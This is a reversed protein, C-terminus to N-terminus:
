QGCGPWTQLVTAGAKVQSVTWHGGSVTDGELLMVKVTLLLKVNGAVAM